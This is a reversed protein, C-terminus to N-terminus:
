RHSKQAAWAARYRGQQSRLSKMQNNQSYLRKGNIYGDPYKPYGDPNNLYGVKCLRKSGLVDTSLLSSLSNFVIWVVNNTAAQAQMCDTHSQVM